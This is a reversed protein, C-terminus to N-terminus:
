SRLQKAAVGLLLLSGALLASTQGSEPVSANTLKGWTVAGSTTGNPDIQALEYYEDPLNGIPITFRIYFDGPRNGGVNGLTFTELAPLFSFIGLRGVQVGDKVAYSDNVLWLDQLGQGLKVESFSDDYNIWMAPGNTFGPRLILYKAQILTANAPGLSFALIGLLVALPLTKM